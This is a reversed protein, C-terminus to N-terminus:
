NQIKKIKFQFNNCFVKQVLGITEFSIRILQSNGLKLKLIEFNESM